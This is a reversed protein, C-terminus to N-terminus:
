KRRVRQGLDLMQKVTPRRRRWRRSSSSRTRSSSTPPPRARCSRPLTSHAMEAKRERRAGEESPGKWGDGLRRVQGARPRPLSPTRPPAGPGLQLLAAGVAEFALRLDLVAFLALRSRVAARWSRCCAM